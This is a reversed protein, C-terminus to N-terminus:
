RYAVKKTKRRVIQARIFKDATRKNSVLYQEYSSGRSRLATIDKSRKDQKWEDWQQDTWNARRNYQSNEALLRKRDAKSASAYQGWFSREKEGSKFREMSEASKFYKGNYQYPSSKKKTGYAKRYASWDGTKLAQQVLKQKTAKQYSENNIWKFSKLFPNDNFYGAKVLENLKETAWLNRTGKPQKAYEDFLAKNKAAADEKKAKIGKTHDTDYKSLIGKFFDDATIGYKKFIAQRQAEATEYDMDKWAASKAFYDATVKQLKKNEVFQDKEFTMSRPKGFFAELDQKNKARPDMSRVYNPKSPDYGQKEKTLGYGESGPKGIYKQSPKDLGKDVRKGKNFKYGLEAQPFKTTLRRILSAENGSVKRGFSDVADASEGAAALYPNFGVSSLGRDSLANFPTTHYKDGVRLRNAFYKAQEAKMTKIEEDTYGLEKLKPVVQNFQRDFDLKQHQDLRNYAIAAGPRDFPMQAAAKTLNKQWSWFPMVAKLPREWNKTKYDFFYKNVRKIAAEDSLGQKKLAKYAAIRPNNEVRTYFNNLKSKGGAEKALDTLVEKPISKKAQAAYRPSLMKVQESAYKTGGSLLGAQTNYLVNNVTWAPRYKLVSKKWINTPSVKSWTAEARGALSKTRARAQRIKFDHELELSHKELRQKSLKKDASAARSYRGGMVEDYDSDFLRQRISDNMYDASSTGKDNKRFKRFWGSDPMDDYLIPAKPVYMRKGKGLFRSNRETILDSEAVEDMLAKYRRVIDQFQLRAPKSHTQLMRLADKGSLKGDTIRQFVAAEQDSLRAIDDLVDLDSVPRGISDAITKKYDASYKDFHAKRAQSRTTITDAYKEARTKHEEGLKQIVPNQAIKSKAWQGATSIKDAGKFAWATAKTNRGATSIKSAASGAKTVALVSLPDALIERASNQNRLSRNRNEWYERAFKDKQDDKLSSFNYKAVADSMIAKKADAWNYPKDVVPRLNFNRQNFTSQWANDRSNIRSATTGGYKYIERDKTNLNGLTNVLRSPATVLSPVNRSGEGLTYKWVPNQAAKQIVNRNFWGGAQAVKSTIKAESKVGYGELMGETWAAVYNLDKVSATLQQNYVEALTNLETASLRARKAEYDAQLRAQLSNHADLKTQYVKVQRDALQKAQTEAFKRSGSARRDAGFTAKDVTRSWWDTSPDAYAQDVVKLANRRAENKIRTYEDESPKPVAIRAPSYASGVRLRATVQPSAVKLKLASRNAAVKSNVQGQVQQRRVEKQRAAEAIVAAQQAAAAAQIRQATAAQQLRISNGSQLPQKPKANQVYQVTPKPQQVVNPSYQMGGNNVGVSTIKGPKATTVKLAVQFWV